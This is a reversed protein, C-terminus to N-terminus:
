KKQFMSINTSNGRSSLLSSNLSKNKRYEKLLINTSKSSAGRRLTLYNKEKEFEKKFLNNNKLKNFNNNISRNILIM